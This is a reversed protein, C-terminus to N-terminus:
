RLVKYKDLISPKNNERPIIGQKYHQDVIEHTDLGIQMPESPPFKIGGIYRLAWKRTCNLYTNSATASVVYFGKPPKTILRIQM